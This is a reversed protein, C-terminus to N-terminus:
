DLEWLTWTEAGRFEIRWIYCKVLKKRLNIYLKRTCLTKKKNFATRAMDIRLKIERTYRADDTIV